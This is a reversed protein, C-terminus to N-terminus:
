DVSTAFEPQGKLSTVLAQAATIAHALLDPCNELKPSDADADALWRDELADLYPTLPSRAASGYAIGGIGGTRPPVLLGLATLKSATYANTGGAPQVYGPLSLALVQQALRVAARTAGRGLDGSMPRGDTQWILLGPFDALTAAIARLYAALGAGDPCSISLLKLRQSWPAIAAWLRRFGALNGIHTHIELADLPSDRLLPAIAAPATTYSRSRILQLPCVPLCRGCGYCRAAEVGGPRDRPIAAAPCIVACPRPCDPPCHEPDFEAKRFHPDEGDNLSAMLWPLRKGAGLVQAAELGSHAAAIAAPDAAVDVCDAGALSYALALNRVAPLHQFSAGCILKFWRGAELAHLPSLYANM